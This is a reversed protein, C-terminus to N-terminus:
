KVLKRQAMIYGLHLAEHMNNFAIAEEISNLTVGYSTTYQSFGSLQQEEYAEQTIDVLKFLNSKFYQLDEEPNIINLASSGKRYRDILENPIITEKGGLKFCLLHQTILIHGFNWLVNNNYGEPVQVMQEISLEQIAGILRERTIRNYDFQLEM